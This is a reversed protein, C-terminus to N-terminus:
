VRRRKQKSNGKIVLLPIKTNCSYLNSESEIKQFVIYYKNDM